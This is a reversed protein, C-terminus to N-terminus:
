SARAKETMGTHGQRSDLRGRVEIGNEDAWRRVVYQLAGSLSNLFAREQVEQLIELDVPYLSVSYKGSLGNGGAM